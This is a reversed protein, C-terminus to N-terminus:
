TCARQAVPTPKHVISCFTHTQMYLHIRAARAVEFSVGLVLAAHGSGNIHASHLRDLPNFRIDGAM